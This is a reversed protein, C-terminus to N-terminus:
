GAARDLCDFEFSGSQVCLLDCFDPLSDIDSIREVIFIDHAANRDGRNRFFCYDMDKLHRLLDVSTADHRALCREAIEVYLSPRAADIYASDRIVASELGEIDLKIYSPGFYREVLEDLPALASVTERTRVLHGAGTNGPVDRYSYRGKGAMFANEFLPRPQHHRSLNHKLLKFTEANGEVALLRGEQGLKDLATLSFTGIHAGLDFVTSDSQLISTAFAFEPRTHNGFAKLHRTILDDSYALLEGFRTKIAIPAHPNGPM